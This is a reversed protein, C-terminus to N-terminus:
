VTIGIKPLMSSDCLRSGIQAVVTWSFNLVSRIFQSNIDEFTQDIGSEPSLDQQSVIESSVKLITTARQHLSKVLWNAWQNKETVYQKEEKTRINGCIERYYINNVLVKPLVATNLEVIWKGQLGPRM